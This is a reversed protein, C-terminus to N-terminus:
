ESSLVLRLLDENSARASELLQWAEDVKEETGEFELERIGGEAACFSVGVLTLPILEEIQRDLYDDLGLYEVWLKKTEKKGNKKATM